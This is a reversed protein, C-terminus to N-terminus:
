HVDRLVSRIRVRTDNMLKSKWNKRMDNLFGIKELLIKILTQNSANDEAVLVDGTLNIKRSNPTEKNQYHELYKYKDYENAKSTEIGVPISVTFVSGKGQTSSVTLRGDLLEVLQKTIALGLGTGGFKRTTTSDLKPTHCPLFSLIRRSLNENRLM